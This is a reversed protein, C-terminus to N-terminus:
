YPADPFSDYLTYRTRRSNGGTEQYQIVQATSLAAALLVKRLIIHEDRSKEKENQSRAALDGLRAVGCLSNETGDGSVTGVNGPNHRREKETHHGIAETIQGQNLIIAQAYALISDQIDLM